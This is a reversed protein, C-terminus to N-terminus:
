YEKWKDYLNSLAASALEATEFDNMYVVIAEPSADEASNSISIPSVVVRVIATHTDKTTSTYGGEVEIFTDRGIRTSRKWVSVWTRESPTALQFKSGDSMFENLSENLRKM